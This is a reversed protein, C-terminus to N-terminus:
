ECSPLVRQVKAACNGDPCQELRVPAYVSEVGDNVFYEYATADQDFFGKRHFSLGYAGSSLMDFSFNGNSDTKTSSCAHFTRCILFVDIGPAAPLVSGSLEGFFLSPVLRVFDRRPQFPYRYLSITLEPIRKNERESLTFPKVTVTTFWEHSFTLTYEAAPLDAFRYVGTDDTQVKYSKTESALEVFAHAVSAGASDILSGTISASWVSYPLLLIALAFRM